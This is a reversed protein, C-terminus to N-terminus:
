RLMLLLPNLVRKANARVLRELFVINANTDAADTIFAVRNGALSKM